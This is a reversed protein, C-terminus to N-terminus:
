QISSDFDGDNRYEQPDSVTYNAQNLLNPMEHFQQNLIKLETLIQRMLMVQTDGFDQAVDTVTLSQAGVINNQIGGVGRVPATGFPGQALGSQPDRPRTGDYDGGLIYRGQSDTLLARTIGGLNGAFPAERGGGIVPYYVNSSGQVSGGGTVLGGTTVGAPIGTAPQGSITPGQGNISAININPTNNVSVPVNQFGGNIPSPYQRLYATVKFSGSAYSSAFVRVFRTSCSIGINVTVNFTFPNGATIPASPILNSFWPIQVWGLAPDNTGQFNISGSWDPNTKLTITISKYGTTDIILQDNANKVTYEIPTAADSPIIAGSIDKKISNDRTNVQVNETNDVSLSLLELNSSISELLDTQNLSNSDNVLRVSQPEANIPTFGVIVQLPDTDAMGTTNFALTLTLGNLTGGKTPDYPDYIVTAVGNLINTIYAIQGLEIGAYESTFTITQNAASFTYYQSSVMGKTAAM